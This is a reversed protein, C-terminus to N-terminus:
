FRKTFTVICVNCLCIMIMQKLESNALFAKLGGSAQVKASIKPPRCPRPPRSELPIKQRLDAGDDIKEQSGPPLDKAKHTWNNEKLQGLGDFLTDAM